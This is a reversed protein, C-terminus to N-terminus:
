PLSHCQSGDITSITVGRVRNIHELEFIPLRVHDDGQKGRCSLIRLRLPTVNATELAIKQALMIDGPALYGEPIFCRGTYPRGAQDLEVVNMQSGYRVRYRRGTHCGVVDFFKYREFQQLQIPSLWEKLLVVSRAESDDRVLSVVFERARQLWTRWRQGAPSQPM